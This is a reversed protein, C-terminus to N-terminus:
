LGGESVMEAGKRHSPFKVKTILLTIISYKVSNNEDGAEDQLNASTDQASLIVSLCCDWNCQPNKYVGYIGQGLSM